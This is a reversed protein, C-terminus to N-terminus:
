SPAASPDNVATQIKVLIELRFELHVQARGDAGIDEVFEWDLDGEFLDFVAGGLTRDAYLAAVIAAYLASAKAGADDGAAAVALGAAARVYGEITPRLEYVKLDATETTPRQPGDYLVITPFRDVRWHPNRHVELGTVGAIGALAAKLAILATERRATM